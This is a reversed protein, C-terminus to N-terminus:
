HATHYATLIAAPIRGRDSIKHGNNRAWERIVATQESNRRLPVDPATPRPTPAALKPARRSARPTTTRGGTTRAHEIWTALDERLTAAHEAPLDIAYSVGDLSFTITEEAAKTLTSITWTTCPQRTHGPPSTEEPISAISPLTPDLITRRGRRPRVPPSSVTSTPSSTGHGSRWGTWCGTGGGRM